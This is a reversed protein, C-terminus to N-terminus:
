RCGEDFGVQAEWGSRASRRRALSYRRDHGPRDTVYEILGDDAGTLEIIKKVV